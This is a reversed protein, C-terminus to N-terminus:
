SVGQGVAAPPLRVDSVNGASARCDHSKNTPVGDEQWPIPGDRCEKERVGHDADKGNKVKPPLEEM